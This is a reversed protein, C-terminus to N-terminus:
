KDEMDGPPVVNGEEDESWGREYPDESEAEKVDRLVASAEKFTEYVPTKSLDIEAGGNALRAKGDPEIDVAEIRYNENTIIFVRRAM